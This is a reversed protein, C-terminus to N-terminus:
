FMWYPLTEHSTWLGMGFLGLDWSYGTTETGLQCGYKAYVTLLSSMDQIYLSSKYILLFFVGSLGTAFQVLSKLLHKM